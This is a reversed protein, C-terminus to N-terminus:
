PEEGTHTSSCQTRGPRSPSTAVESYHPVNWDADRWYRRMTATLMPVRVTLVAWGNDSNAPPAAMTTTTSTM